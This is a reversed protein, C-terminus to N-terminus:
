QLGSHYSSGKPYIAESFENRALFSVKEKNVLFKQKQIKVFKDIEIKPFSANKIVDTVVELVKELNNKLVYVTISFTEAGCSADYFAGEGEIIEAIQNSNKNTTGDFLLQGVTTPIISNKHNVYGADFVLELKIMQQSLSTVYFLKQKNKLKSSNAKVYDFQYDLTFKPALKRNIM